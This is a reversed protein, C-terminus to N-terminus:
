SAHLVIQVARRPGGSANRRGSHWLHGNFVLISGARGTVVIERPHHALPQAVAKPPPAPERHTGPVARTAGNEVIFDDLMVIATVIFWPDGPARPGWDAHLGQQGFGPLPNRGHADRVRFPRGFVHRAAALIAPHRELEADRVPVHQTGERQAPDFALRLRAVWGADVADPVLTWGERDLADNM